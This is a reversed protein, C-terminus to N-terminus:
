IWSSRFLREKPLSTQLLDLTLQEGPKNVNLCSTGSLLPQIKIFKFQTTEQMWCEPMPPFILPWKLFMFQLYRHLPIDGCFIAKYPVTGWYRWKLIRSNGNLFPSTVKESRQACAKARLLCWKRLSGLPEGHPLTQPIRRWKVPSTWGPCSSSVVRQYNTVYSNFIGMFFPSKGYNKTHKGSPLHTSSVLGDFSDFALKVAIDRPALCECRPRVRVTCHSWCATTWHPAWPFLWSRDHLGGQFLKMCNWGIDPQPNPVNIHNKWINSM